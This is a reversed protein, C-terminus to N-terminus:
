PCVVAPNGPLQPCLVAVTGRLCAVTGGAPDIVVNAVGLGEQPALLHRELPWKVGSVSVLAPGGLALVSLVAGEPLVRLWERHRDSLIWGCLGPDFILPNLDSARSLAGIAALTHDLRGSWAGTVVVEYVGTRRAYELALELDTFDKEAPHTEVVVNAERMWEVLAPDLSDFDGVLVSPTVGADICTAGGGDIAIVVDCSASLSKVLEASGPVAAAAVLLAKM